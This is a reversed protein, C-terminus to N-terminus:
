DIRSWSHVAALAEFVPEVGRALPDRRDIAAEIEDLWAALSRGQLVRNDDPRLEARLMALLRRMRAVDDVAAAIRAFTKVRNEELRRREAAELRRREEERARRTREAMVPIAAVIIELIEGLRDEVTAEDTDTWTRAAPGNKIELVLLGTPVTERRRTRKDWRRENEPVPVWVQKHKERLGVLLREGEGRLGITRADVGEGALGRTEAAKLLADFVRHRRREMPTWKISRPRYDGTLRDLRQLDEHRERRQEHWAAVVPHPNRLQAPVKIRPADRGRDAADKLESSLSPEPPPEPKPALTVSESVGAPAAPLPPQTTRKGAQKKAWHGRPPYPVACRRCVKALGNGSLGFEAALHQMPTEWVRRYLEERTLTPM